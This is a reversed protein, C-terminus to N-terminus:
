VVGRARAAGSLSTTAGVEFGAPGQEDEAEEIVASVDTEVERLVNQIRKSLAGRKRWVTDHSKKEQVDLELIEDALTGAEAFKRRYAESTILTYLKSMKTAREKNSLGKVHMTVMADRLLEVVYVVRAPSVVIVKSEICMEKKRSPFVSTALIAQEAGEEVQDQRLKTVYSDQWGQRNKSDIVIKGCSAGKYLVEHVIDAGSHGKPVRTIKDTSFQDRLAEFLDIEAGDGLENATKNQIQRELLQVKKQLAEGKRNFDAQMKLLAIKKDNELTERQRALGEQRVKEAEALLEKRVAAVSAESQVLKKAAQDKESSLRKVLAETEQRVRKEVAAKQKDLEMKYELEIRRRLDAAKREEQQRLVVQIEKFKVASLETGCLPCQETNVAM